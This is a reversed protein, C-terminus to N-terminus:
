VYKSEERLLEPPLSGWQERGRRFMVRMTYGGIYRDPDSTVVWDVIDAIRHTHLRELRGTHTVPPTMYRVSISDRDVALLEAWLYETTGSSTVFPIKVRTADKAGIFLELMQPVSEKAKQRAEIMLPDDDSIALPPVRPRNRAIVWWWAVRAALGVLLLLFLENM